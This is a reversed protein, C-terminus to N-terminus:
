EPVTVVAIDRIGEPTLTQLVAEGANKGTILLGYPGPTVSVIERDYLPDLSLTLQNGERIASFQLAATEGSRLTISVPSFVVLGDEPISVVCVAAAYRRDETDMAQYTIVSHKSVAAFVLLLTFLVNVILSVICLPKLM